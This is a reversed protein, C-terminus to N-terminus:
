GPAGGQAFARASWGVPLCGRLPASARGKCAGWARAPPLADRLPLKCSPPLGRCSGGAERVVRGALARARAQACSNPCGTWHMRVKNPIDLQEELKSVVAMARNKTEIIAVGCFQACCLITPYTGQGAGPAGRTSRARVRCARAQSKPRQAREGPAPVCASRQCPPPAAGRPAPRLGCVPSRHQQM